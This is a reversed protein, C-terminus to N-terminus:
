NYYKQLFIILKSFTHEPSPQPHVTAQKGEISIYNHFHDTLTNFTAWTM